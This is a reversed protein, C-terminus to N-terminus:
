ISELFFTVEKIAELLGSVSWKQGLDIALEDVPNKKLSEFSWGPLKSFGNFLGEFSQEPRISLSGYRSTYVVFRYDQKLEIGNEKGTAKANLIFSAM